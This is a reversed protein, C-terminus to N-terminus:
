GGRKKDGGPAEVPQAFEAKISFKVLEMPPTTLVETQSSLIDVSKKFYGSAQLNAVFDTLNTVALCQGDIIVGDTTQKLQTLWLMSPLARSIEDLMHVPGTQAKRLQEILVVRQQLQLKQQEFQQVNQIVAHLRATEQQAQSIAIDLRASRQQLMWYRWGVLIATVVVIATCGITVKQGAQFTPARKAAKRDVSLLNIRIV